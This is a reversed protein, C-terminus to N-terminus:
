HSQDLVPITVGRLEDLVNRRIIWVDEAHEGHPNSVRDEITRQSYMADEILQVVEVSSIPLIQEDDNYYLFVEDNEGEM